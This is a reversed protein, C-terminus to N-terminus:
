TFNNEITQIELASLDLADYITTNLESLFTKQDVKNSDIISNVIQEIRTEVEHNFTFIPMSEIHKRLIKITNFKSKFIFQIVNSQMIGLVVKIPMNIKPILINASNLTLRQTNDYAFIFKNAIFRYILKEKVRFYAEPACQQFKDKDFKIFNLSESVRFETIDKGKLIVEAGEFREDSILKANNGTVIGLAFISEKGITKHPKEFIKKILNRENHSINFIFSSDKEDLLESQEIVTDAEGNVLRVVSNSLPRNNILDVIVVNTLLGKFIKGLKTIKIGTTNTLIKKRIPVHSAVDLFSEPLLFSLKGGKNLKDLSLSLFIAFSDTSVAKLKSDANLPLTYDAGWPPNTIVLDFNNDFFSEQNTLLYSIADNKVINLIGDYRDRAILILNLRCIHVAIPDIDVGYIKNLPNHESNELKKLLVEILFSGSGCSPDLVTNNDTYSSNVIEKALNNPTYFVGKIAKHSSASIHQYTKGLLDLVVPIDVINLFLQQVNLLEVQSIHEWDEIEKQLANLWIPLSINELNNQKEINFIRTAIALLIEEVSYDDIYKDISNFFLEIEDCNLESHKRKKTIFKKNARKQLKESNGSNIKQLLTDVSSSLILKKYKHESVEIVGLKQWNSITALSVGLREAAISLSIYESDFLQYNQM